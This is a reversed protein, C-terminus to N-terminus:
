SSIPLHEAELLSKMHGILWLSGNVILVEILKHLSIQCQLNHIGIIALHRILAKFCPDAACPRSSIQSPAAPCPLFAVNEKKKKAQPTKERGTPKGLILFHM